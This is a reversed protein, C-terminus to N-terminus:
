IQIWATRSTLSYSDVRKWRVLRGCVAGPKFWSPPGPYVTHAQLASVRPCPYPCPVSASSVPEKSLLLPCLSKPASSVPKPASASAYGRFLIPAPLIVASSATLLTPAPASLCVKQGHQSTGPLFERNVGSRGRCTTLILPLLRQEFM